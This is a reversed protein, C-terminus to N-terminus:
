IGTLFQKVSDGNHCGDIVVSVDDKMMFTEMRCPWYFDKMGQLPVNLHELVSAALCANELQVSYSVSADLVSELRDRIVAILQM